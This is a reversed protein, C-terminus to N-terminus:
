LHGLNKKWWPMTFAHMRGNRKKPVEEGVYCDIAEGLARRRAEVNRFHRGEIMEAEVTKAWREAQRRNPFRRQARRSDKCGVQVHFTRAGDGRVRERIAAM